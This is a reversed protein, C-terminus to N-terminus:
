WNRMGREHGYFDDKFNTPGSRGDALLGLGNRLLNGEWIGDYTQDYFHWNDGRKSGQTM